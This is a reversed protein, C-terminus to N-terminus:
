KKIKKNKYLNKTTKKSYKRKKQTKLKKYLKRKGGIKNSKFNEFFNILVTKVTNYLEQNKFHYFYLKCYYKEPLNADRRDCLLLHIKGVIEDNMKLTIDPKNQPIGYEVTLSYGPINQLVNTLENQNEENKFMFHWYKNEQPKLYQIIGDKPIEISEAPIEKSETENIEIDNPVTELNSNYEEM